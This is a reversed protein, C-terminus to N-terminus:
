QVVTGRGSLRDALYILLGYVVMLMLVKSYQFYSMSLRFAQGLGGAGVFGVVISARVINEFRYLVYGTLRNFVAPITAYLLTGFTSAGASRLALTPREDYDEMVDSCLKGLIGYNHIALAIAGPVIGPKFIFILIMAWIIEPVTRTIVFVAHIIRYLFRKGFLFRGRLFRKHSFPLTILMVLTALGIALLSMQLTEVGLWLIERWLLLDKFFPQAEGIGFLGKIFAMMYSMNKTSMLPAISLARFFILYLTAVLTIGTTVRFVLHRRGAELAHRMRKSLYDIGYVLMVLVYVLLWADNYDLDQLSLHIQYGIGGLGIFSLVASSRIACEYRYFIYSFMANKCQPLVGYLLQQFRSAGSQRLALVPQRASDRMIDSFVKGVMGTYPIALALVGTIPVIGFSAVLFLGWLLEHISRLAMLLKRAVNFKKESFIESAPVALLLGFIVAIALGLTAYAVTDIAAKLGIWLLDGSLTPQVMALLIEQLARIGNGHMYQARWPSLMLFALLFVSLFAMVKLTKKHKM